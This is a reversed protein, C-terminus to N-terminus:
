RRELPIKGDVGYIFWNFNHLMQDEPMSFGEEIQIYGDQDIIPGEFVDWLGDTLLAKKAEVVELIGKKVNTTLPALDVMGTDLGTWYFKGKFKGYLCSLIQDRYFIDWNWISATLYTNKYLDSHDLHYGISYIGKEEAIRLTEFSDHHYTIVDISYQDLLDMTINYAVEDSDWSYMWEVYVTANPNVSQVGLTFANIERIVQSTPTSAVYGIENTRTQMGAVIGALYRIQYMRGLFATLNKRTKSGGAHLFQIHPYEEAMKYISDVLRYSTVIIMSAGEDVLEEIVEEAKEDSQIGTKYLLRLNLEEKMKELSEYHSQTWGDDDTKGCMVVGVTTEEKTVESVPVVETSNKWLWVGMVTAAIGAIGFVVRWKKM